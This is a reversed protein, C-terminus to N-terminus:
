LLLLLLEDTHPELTRRRCRSAQKGAALAGVFGRDAPARALSRRVSSPCPPLPSYARARLIHTRAHLVDTRGARRSLPAVMELSWSEIYPRPLLVVEGRESARESVLM